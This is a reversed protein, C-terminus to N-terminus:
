WETQESRCFLPSTCEMDFSKAWSVVSSSLILRTDQVCSFFKTSIIDARATPSQCVLRDALIPRKLM